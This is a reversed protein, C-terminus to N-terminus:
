LNALLTSLHTALLFALQHSTNNLPYFCGFDLIRIFLYDALRYLHFSLASYYKHQIITHVSNKEKTKDDDTNSKKTKISSTATSLLPPLLCTGLSELYKYM